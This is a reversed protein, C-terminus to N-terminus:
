VNDLNQNHAWCSSEKSLGKYVWGGEIARREQGSWKRISCARMRLEFLDFESEGLAKM